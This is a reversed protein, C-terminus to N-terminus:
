FEFSYKIKFSRPLLPWNTHVYILPWKPILHITELLLCWLFEPPELLIISKSGNFQTAEFSLQYLLAIADYLDDM